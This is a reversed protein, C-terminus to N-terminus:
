ADIPKLNPTVETAAAEGGTAGDGGGSRACVYLSSTRYLESIGIVCLLYNCNADTTIVSM